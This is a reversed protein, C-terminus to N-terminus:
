GRKRYSLEAETYIVDDVDGMRPLAALIADRSEKLTARGAGYKGAVGPLAHGTVRMDAAVDKITFLRDDRKPHDAGM